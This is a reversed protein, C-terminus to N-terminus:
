DIGRGGGDTYKILIVENGKESYVLEDVVREALLIGFGGPRLGMELRKDMHGVPNGSPNAVAAHELKTRDFGPGPDRLYYVVARGTRAATVEIVKGPDFEAGHEMANVLMERFALILANREPEPLTTPMETMFRVLREATVLRASVRLSVWHPLGSVVEIGDSWSGQEVARGIMHAVEQIDFPATFCAFVHARLAKILEVSSAQPALVITRIGPQILRVEEVFALDEDVSTEPATVMVDVATRRIVRLAQLRTPCQELDIGDLASTTRLREVFEPQHGILLARLPM